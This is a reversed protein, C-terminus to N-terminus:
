VCLVSFSLALLSSKYSGLLLCGVIGSLHTKSFLAHMCNPKIDGSSRVEIVCVQPEVGDEDVPIRAQRM